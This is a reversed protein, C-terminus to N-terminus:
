NYELGSRPLGAFKQLKAQLGFFIPPKAQIPKNKVQSPKESPETQPKAQKKSKNKKPKARDNAQNERVFNFSFFTV